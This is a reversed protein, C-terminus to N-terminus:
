QEQKKSSLHGLLEDMMACYREYQAASIRAVKERPFSAVTDDIERAQVRCLGSDIPRIYTQLGYVGLIHEVKSSGDHVTSNFFNKTGWHDISFCPVANHLSVIIPHMNSGIYASANAILAYWDIPSLPLEIEYDFTHSFRIGTPMPFAVCAVGRAALLRKLESLTEVPLSQSHLSVLAYSEPLRFRSRIDEGNPVLSGANQNFAFVPDPTVSPCMQPDITKVMRQTWTDRVSIYAMRQLALAMRKKLSKSFHRFASNQSSVSMMAMPVCGDIGCGWFPNPFMREPAVKGIYFPRRRGRHIRSILPHHQLVADSGVIVADIGERRIAAMVESSTHLPETHSPIASDVYAMHATTQVNEDSSRMARESWETVYDLFVVEHGKARLYHYTSVAQLNAGFNAVRYFTLIGIKM